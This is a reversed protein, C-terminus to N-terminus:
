KLERTSFPAITVTAKAVQMKGNRFYKNWLDGAEEGEGHLTFLVDPFQQSLNKMDEEHEYWNCEDDFPSYGDYLKEQASEISVALTEPEYTLSYRTYYGM